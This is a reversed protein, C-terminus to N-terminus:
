TSSRFSSLNSITNNVWSIFRNVIVTVILAIIFSVPGWYFSTRLNPIEIYEEWTSPDFSNPHDWVKAYGKRVMIENVNGYHTSNAVIFVLSVLRDYSDRIEDVQLHIHKNLVLKSLESKAEEYGKEGSGPTDIDALRVVEGNSVEFTDGDFVKICITDLDFSLGTARYFYVFLTISITFFIILLFARRINL